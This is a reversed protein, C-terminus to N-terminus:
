IRNYWRRSRLIGARKPQVDNKQMLAKIRKRAEESTVEGDASATYADAVERFRKRSLRKGRGSAAKVWEEVGREIERALKVDYQEALDSVIGRAQAASLGFHRVGDELLETEIKRTVFALNRFRLETLEAFRYAGDGNSSSYGENQRDGHDSRAMGAIGRHWM